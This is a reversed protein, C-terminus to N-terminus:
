ICLFRCVQEDPEGLMFKQGVLEKINEAIM